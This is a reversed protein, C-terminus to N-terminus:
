MSIEVCMRADPGPPASAPRERRARGSIAAAASMAETIAAPHLRDAGAEAGCAPPGRRCITVVVPITV